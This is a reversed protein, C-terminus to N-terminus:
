EEGTEGQPDEFPRPDGMSTLFATSSIRGWDALEDQAKKIAQAREARLGRLVELVTEDTGPPNEMVARMAGASVQYAENAKELEKKWYNEKQILYDYVLDEFLVSDAPAEIKQRIDALAQKFAPRARFCIQIPRSIRM